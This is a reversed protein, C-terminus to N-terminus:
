VTWLVLQIELRIRAQLVLVSNLEEVLEGGGSQLVNLQEFARRGHLEM